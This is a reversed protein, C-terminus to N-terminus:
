MVVLTFNSNSLRVFTRFRGVRSKLVRRQRFVLNRPTGRRVERFEPLEGLAAIRLIGALRSRFPPSGPGAAERLRGVAPVLIGMGTRLRRAGLGAARLSAVLAMFLAQQPDLLALEESRDLNGCAHGVARQGFHFAGFRFSPRATTTDSSRCVVAGCPALGNM